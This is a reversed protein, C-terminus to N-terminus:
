PSAYYESGLTTKTCMTPADGYYVQSYTRMVGERYPPVSPHRKTVIHRGGEARQDLGDPWRAKYKIPHSNYEDKAMSAENANFTGYTTM